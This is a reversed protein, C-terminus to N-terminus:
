YTFCSGGVFERLLSHRPVCDPNIELFYSLFKLLRAAESYEPVTNKVSSLASVAFQKLAAIEYPLASNFIVDANEQYPFINREEGRRVSPWRRITDSAGYGRFQIDRVIRRLLRSDSTSIRNHDDLNLHTLPSAYIKFKLGDPIAPLLQDNLGHIGELILIGNPPLQVFEGPVSKGKIFDFRPLQVREGNLLKRVCSQILPVNITEFAEFDYEGFEDKPTKERDVFFDDLGIVVPRKGNVRLHIALRKCTTTKGSASPGSLLVIKPKREHNTIMDAIQALKKEHLAEAILVYERVTGAQIVENLQPLTRWDLIRMWQEYERLVTFVKDFNRSPAVQHPNTSRAFRIILGPSKYKLEFAVVGKTSPSLQGYFHNIKKMLSYVSVSDDEAFKLLHAKDDMGARKFSSIAKKMSTDKRIIAHDSEVIQQMRHQIREVDSQTLSIPQSSGNIDMYLETYYGSDISHNIYVSVNPFLEEVAVILIFCLTRRAILVGDHTGLHIPELTGDKDLKRSISTVKNNYRAAVIPHPTEIKVQELVENAPTMPPVKIKSGDPLTIRVTKTKLTTGKKATM